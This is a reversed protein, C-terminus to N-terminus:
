NNSQNRSQAKGILLSCTRCPSKGILAGIPAEVLAGVLAQSFDEVLTQIFDEVLDEILTEILDECFPAATNTHVPM